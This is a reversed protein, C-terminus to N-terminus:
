QAKKIKKHRIQFNQIKKKIEQNFDFGSNEPEDYFRAVLPNVTDNDSDSDGNSNTNFNTMNNVSNLINECSTNPIDELFNRDLNSGDDPCFEELSNLKKIKILLYNEYNM